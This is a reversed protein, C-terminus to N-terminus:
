DQSIFYYQQCVTILIISIIFVRFLISHIFFHNHSKPNRSLYTSTPIWEQGWLMFFVSCVSFWSSKEAREFNIDCLLSVSIVWFGSLPLSLILKGLDYILTALFSYYLTLCLQCVAPPTTYVLPESSAPFERPGLRPNEWGQSKHKVELLEVLNECHLDSFFVKQKWCPSSFIVMKFQVWHRRTEGSRLPFEKVLSRSPPLSVGLALGTGGKTRVKEPIPLPPPTSLLVQPWLRFAYTWLFVQGYLKYFVEGWEGYTVVVDVPSRYLLSPNYSFSGCSVSELFSNRLFGSFLLPSLFSSVLLISSNVGWTYYVTFGLMVGVRLLM